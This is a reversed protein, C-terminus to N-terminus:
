DGTPELNPNEAFAKVCAEFRKNDTDADAPVPVIATYTGCGPENRPQLVVDYRTPTVYVFAIVDHAYLQVAHRHIRAVLDDPHISYWGARTRPLKSDTDPM